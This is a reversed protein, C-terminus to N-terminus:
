LWERLKKYVDHYPLGVICYYDGKISTVYKGFGKQIGYAGAMGYIFDNSLWEDIEDESMKDVTVEAVEYDKYTEIDGNVRKIMFVSTVVEHTNNQITKIMNYAEERSKPKGFVYDQYKVLTDSGIIICDGDVKSFVDYAKQSSIDMSQEYLSLGPKMIEDSNSVIIEYPINLTDMLEKRRPSQSALIVKM